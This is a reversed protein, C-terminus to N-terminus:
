NDNIVEKATRNGNSKVIRNNFSHATTENHVSQAANSILQNKLQRFQQFELYEQHSILVQTDELKSPPQSLTQVEKESTEKKEVSQRQENILQEM